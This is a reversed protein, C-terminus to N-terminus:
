QARFRHGDVARQQGVFGVHEHGQEGAGCEAGRDRDLDDVGGGARFQGSVARDAFTQGGTQAVVGVADVEGWGWGAGPVGGARGHDGPYAGAVPVAAEGAAPAGGFLAVEVVEDGPTWAGGLCGVQRTKAPIM